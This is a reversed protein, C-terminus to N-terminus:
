RDQEQYTADHGNTEALSLNLTSVISYPSGIRFSVIRIMKTSVVLTASACSDGFVAGACDSASFFAALMMIPVSCCAHSAIFFLSALNKSALRAASLEM